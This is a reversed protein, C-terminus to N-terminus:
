WRLCDSKIDHDLTMIDKFSFFAHERDFSSGNLASFERCKKFFLLCAYLLAEYFGHM